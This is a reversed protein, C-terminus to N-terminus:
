AWTSPIFQMPGVAHDFVPDGDFVGNDTDLVLGTGVGNLPIGIIRPTSLGNALLVSGAFRGHDSEVRGVAALLTWPLACSTSRQNALDAAHKYARAAVAPIGDSALVSVALPPLPATSSNAAASLGATTPLNGSDQPSSAPSPAPQPAVMEGSGIGTSSAREANVAAGASRSDPAAGATLLWCLLLATFARPHRARLRRGRKTTRAVVGQQRHSASM